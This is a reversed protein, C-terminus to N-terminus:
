HVPVRVGYAPHGSYPVPQKQLQPRWLPLLLIPVSKAMRFWFTLKPKPHSQARSRCGAKKKQDQQLGEIETCLFMCYFRPATQITLHLQSDSWHSPIHHSFHAFLAQSLRAPFWISDLDARKGEACRRFDRKRPYLHPFAPIFDKGKEFMTNLSRPALIPPPLVVM